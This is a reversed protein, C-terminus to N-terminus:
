KKRGYRVINVQARVVQGSKPDTVEPSYKVKGDPATGNQPFNKQGKLVTQYDPSDKTGANVQAEWQTVVVGQPNQAIATEVAAKIEGLSARSPLPFGFQDMAAHLRSTGASQMVLSTLHDFGITPGEAGNDGVAKLQVHVDLFAPGTRKRASGKGEWSRNARIGNNGLRMVVQHEGDDPLPPNFFEESSAQGDVEVVENLLSLDNIDAM